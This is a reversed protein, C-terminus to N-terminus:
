GGSWCLYRWHGVGAGCPGLGVLSKALFDEVEDLLSGV